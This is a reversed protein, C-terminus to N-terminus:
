YYYFKLFFYFSVEPRDLLLLLKKQMKKLNTSIEIVLECKHDYEPDNRNEVVSIVASSTLILGQLLNLAEQIDNSDQKTWIISDTNSLSHTQDDLSLTSVYAIIENNKFIFIYM